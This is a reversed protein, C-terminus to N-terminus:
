KELEAIYQEVLGLQAAHDLNQGVVREALDISLNAVETRADALVRRKEADADARAKSLIQDAEANAKALIDARVTEAANRAEELIEAEKARTETLQTKYDALVSEAEVKNREAEELKGGIARQRAELTDNLAPLAWRNIFYFVIVFAVIGAILESTEPLVLSVNSGEGAEEAQTALVVISALLPM